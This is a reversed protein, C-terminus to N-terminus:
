HAGAHPSGAEPGTVDDPAVEMYQLVNTGIEAFVPAAVTGGFHQPKVTDYLAVVIVIQPNDAPAFGAFSSFFVTKSYEGNLFKQATGTKGAETYGPIDARRGTGEEGVVAKMAATIDRAVNEGIVRGVARPPFDEVINDDADMTRAVLRPEMRTGGNAIAAYALALQLPTVGIEQGMPLSTISYGSWDRVPSFRGVIEGPLRIGTRQGFGFARLGDHLRRKALEMDPSEAPGGLSMAVKAIGINSSKEIIEFVSLIDYSHSDHLRHGSPARWFGHECDFETDLTVARHQLAIAATFPKLTSGPEFYAEIGVNTTHAQMEPTLGNPDFGPSNAWALIEGTQPRLVLATIGSCTVAEAARAVAQEVFCQINLDITLVVDLGNVPPRDAPAGRLIERRRGDVQRVRSGNQGKLWSNASLEIGALPYKDDRVVPEHEKDDPLEDRVYGLVHALMTGNPYVRRMRDKLVVGQYSYRDDTGAVGPLVDEFFARDRRLAEIQELVHDPVKRQVWVERKGTQYALRAIETQPREMIEALRTVFADPDKTKRPDAIVEPDLCVLYTPESMALTKGNCDLIRGRSPFITLRKEHQALAERVFFDHKSVQIYFLKAGLGVFATILFGLVIACRIKHISNPM